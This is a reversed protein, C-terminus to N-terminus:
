NKEPNKSYYLTWFFLVSKFFINQLLELLLGFKQVTTNIYTMQNEPDVLFDWYNNFEKEGM